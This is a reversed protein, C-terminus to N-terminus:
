GEILVWWCFGKEECFRIDQECLGSFELQWPPKM